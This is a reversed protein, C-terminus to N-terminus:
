SDETCLVGWFHLTFKSNPFALEDAEHNSLFEIIRPDIHDYAISSIYITYPVIYTKNVKKGM